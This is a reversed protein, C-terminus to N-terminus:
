FNTKDIEVSSIQPKNIAFSHPLLLSVHAHNQNFAHPTCQNPSLQLLHQCLECVILCTLCNGVKSQNVYIM